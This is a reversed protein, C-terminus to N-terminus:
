QLLTSFAADLGARDLGDEKVAWSPSLSFVPMARHFEHITQFDGADPRHYPRLRNFLVRIACPAVGLHHLAAIANMAHQQQGFDPGIPIVYYDFARHFFHRNVLGTIFADTATGAVDVVCSRGDRRAVSLEQVMMDFNAVHFTRDAFADNGWAFAILEADLRPSLLRRALTSKGVAGAYSIVAVHM